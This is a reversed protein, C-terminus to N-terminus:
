CYVVCDAARAAPLLSPPLLPSPCFVGQPVIFVNLLKLALGQLLPLLLQGLGGDLGLLRILYNNISIIALFM